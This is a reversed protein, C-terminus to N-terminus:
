PFMPSYAHLFAYVIHIKTKNSFLIKTVLNIATKQYIHSFYTVKAVSIYM